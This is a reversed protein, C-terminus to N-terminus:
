IHLSTGYGRPGLLEPPFNNPGGITTAAHILPVPQQKMEGVESITRDALLAHIPLSGEGSSRACSGTSSRSAITGNSSPEHRLSPVRARPLVPPGDPVLRSQGSGGFDVTRTSVDTMPTDAMSKGTDLMDSLSPLLHQHTSAARGRRVCPPQRRPHRHHVDRPSGADFKVSQPSLGGEDVSNAYSMPTPATSSHQSGAMSASSNMREHRTPPPESGQLRESSSGSGSGCSTAGGPTVGSSTSGHRLRAPELRPRKSADHGKFYSYTLIHSRTWLVLIVECVKTKNPKDRRSNRCISRM